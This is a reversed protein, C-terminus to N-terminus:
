INTAESKRRFVDGYAQALILHKKKIFAVNTFDMIQSHQWLVSCINVNVCYDVEVQICNQEIAKIIQWWSFTRTIHIDEFITNQM